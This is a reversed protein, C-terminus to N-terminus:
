PDTGMRRTSFARKTSGSAGSARFVLKGFADQVRLLRPHRTGCDCVVYLWFLIGPFKLFGFAAPVIMMLQM